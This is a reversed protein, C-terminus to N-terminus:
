SVKSNSLQRCKEAYDKLGIEEWIKAAESFAEKAENQLKEADNLSQGLKYLSNAISHKNDMKEYLTRARKFENRGLEVNGQIFAIKALSIICNAEGLLNGVKQYLVLAKNYSREAECNNQEILYLDGLGTISNAEGLLDSVKQYFSLANTYLEKAKRNDTKRSYITGLAFLCNAKGLEYDIQQYLTLAKIYYLEAEHYNSEILFINGQKIVCNAEGLIDGVKQYFTLAKTYLQKAECNNSKYYDIEGLRYICNAKGLVNNVSNYIGEAITLEDEAEKYKALNTYLECKQLGLDAIKKKMSITQPRTKCAKEIDNTLTNISAITNQYIDSQFDPIDVNSIFKRDPYYPYFYFCSGRWSWFDPAYSMFPAEDGPLLWFILPTSIVDPLCNRRLNLNGLATVVKKPNNILSHMNNIFLPSSNTINNAVTELFLLIDTEDKEIAAEIINFKPLLRKKVEKEIAIDDCFVFSISFETSRELLRVFAKYEEQNEKGLELLPKTGFLNIM